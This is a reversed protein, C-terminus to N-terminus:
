WNDNRICDLVGEIDHRNLFAFCAEFTEKRQVRKQILVRGIQSLHLIVVDFRAPVKNAESTDSDLTWNKTLSLSLDKDLSM